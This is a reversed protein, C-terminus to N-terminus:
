GSAILMHQITCSKMIKRKIQCRMLMIKMLIIALCLSVMFAVFKGNVIKSTGISPEKGEESSEIDWTTNLAKKMTGNKKNACQHMTVMAKGSLINPEKQLIRKRPNQVKWKAQKSKMYKKFCNFLKAM